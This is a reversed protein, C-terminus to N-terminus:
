PLELLYCLEVVQRADASLSGLARDLLLAMDQRSLVELPDPVTRDPIDKLSSAEM